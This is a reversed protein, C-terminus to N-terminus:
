EKKKITGTLEINVNECNYIFNFNQTDNNCDYNELVDEMFNLLKLKFKHEDFTFTSKNEEKMEM